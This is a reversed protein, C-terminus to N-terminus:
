AAIEPDIKVLAHAAARRVMRQRDRLRTLLAPVAPRADTGFRGLAEAADRRVFADQDSLVQALAPVALPAESPRDGLAKIAHLRSAADPAHLQDLWATTPKGCGALLVALGLGLFRKM